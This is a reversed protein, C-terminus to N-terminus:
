VRRVVVVTLDDGPGESGAFANVQDVIRDSLPSGDMPVVIRENM